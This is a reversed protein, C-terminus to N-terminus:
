NWLGILNCYKYLYAFLISFKYRENKIEESIKLKEKLENLELTRDIKLICIKNM